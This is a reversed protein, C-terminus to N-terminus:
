GGPTSQFSGLQEWVAALAAPTLTRKDILAYGPAPPGGLSQGSDATMLVIRTQPAAARIGDGAKRGGIGPMRLDLLVLDPRSSAALDVAAEGSTAAGVLEFGSAM